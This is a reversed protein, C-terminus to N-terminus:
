SGGERKEFASGAAPRVITKLVTRLPGPLRSVFHRVKATVEEKLEVQHLFTRDLRYRCIPIMANSWKRHFTSAGGLSLMPFGHECAWEIIRWILLDNPCLHLYEDLSCNNAYEVLGGPYFRIGSAAIAEGKYWALFRQHNARMQQVAALTAFDRDMHIRKRKTSKWASYVYWYAQMDADTTSEAVEVGSRIAKRVDRKRHPVLHNFLVATGPSLDIVADGELSLKHFGRNAFGRVAVSDWSYVTIVKADPLRTMLAEGLAQSTADADEDKAICLQPRSPLGSIVQWGQDLGTLVAIVRGRRMLLITFPNRNKWYPELFFEPSDYHAPYDVGSLFERWM